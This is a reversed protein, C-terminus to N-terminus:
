TQNLVVSDVRIFSSGGRDALKTGAGIEIGCTDEAAAQDREAKIGSSRKL